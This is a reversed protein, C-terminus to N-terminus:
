KNNGEEGETPYLIEVLMNNMEKETLKSSEYADEFLVKSDLFKINSRLKFEEKDLSTLFNMNEDDYVFWDM